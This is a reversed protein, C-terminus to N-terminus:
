VIRKAAHPTSKRSNYPVWECVSVRYVILITQSGVRTSTSAFFLGREAPCTLCKPMTLRVLIFYFHGFRSFSYIMSRGGRPVRNRDSRIPSKELQFHFPLFCQAFGIWTRLSCWMTISYVTQPKSNLAHPM